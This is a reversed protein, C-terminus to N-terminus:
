TKNRGNAIKLAAALSRPFGTRSLKDARAQLVAPTQSILTGTAVDICQTTADVAGEFPATGAPTNAALDIQNGRFIRGTFQGDTLSYFHWTLKM